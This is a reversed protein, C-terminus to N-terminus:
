EEELRSKEKGLYQLLSLQLSQILEIIRIGSKWASKDTRLIIEDPTKIAELLM